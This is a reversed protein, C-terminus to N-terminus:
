PVRYGYLLDYVVVNGATTNYAAWVRPGSAVNTLISTSGVVVDDVLVYYTSGNFAVAYNHANGDVVHSTVVKTSGPGPKFLELVLHTADYSTLATLNAYNFGTTDIPGMAQYNASVAAFKGRVAWAHPQTSLDTYIVSTLTLYNSAAPATGGGVIAADRALITPVAGNTAPQLNAPKVHVYSLDSVISNLVTQRAAAWANGGVAAKVGGPAKVIKAEASTCSTAGIAVAALLAISRLHTLLKM